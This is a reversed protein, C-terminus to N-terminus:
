GQTRKSAESSPLPSYGSCVWSKHVPYINGRAPRQRGGPLTNHGDTAPQGQKEPQIEGIPDGACQAPRPLGWGRPGLFRSGPGAQGAQHQPLRHAFPLERHCEGPVGQGRRSWLPQLHRRKGASRPRLMWGCGKPPPAGHSPWGHGQSSRLAADGGRHPSVVSGPLPKPSASCGPDPDRDEKGAALRSGQGGFPRTVAKARCHTVQRPAALGQGPSTQAAASAM